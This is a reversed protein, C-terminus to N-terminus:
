GKNYAPLVGAAAVVSGAASVGHAITNDGAGLSQIGGPFTWRVAQLAIGNDSTGVVTLGDGSVAFVDGQHTSGLLEPLPIFEAGDASTASLVAGFVVCIGAIKNYIMARM